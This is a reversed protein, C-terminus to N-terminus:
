CHTAAVVAVRQPRQDGCLPMLADAASALTSSSRADTMQSHPLQQDANTVQPSGVKGHLAVSLTMGANIPRVGTCPLLCCVAM